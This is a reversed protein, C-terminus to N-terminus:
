PRRRSNGKETKVGPRPQLLEFSGRQPQRLKLRKSIKKKRRSWEESWSSLAPSLDIAREEERKSGRKTTPRETEKGLGLSAKGILQIEGRLKQRKGNRSPEAKM